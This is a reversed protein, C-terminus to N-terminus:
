AAKFIGSAECVRESVRPASGHIPCSLGHWQCQSMLYSWQTNCRSVLERVRHMKQGANTRFAESAHTPPEIKPKFLPFAPVATFRSGSLIACTLRVATLSTVHCSPPFTLGGPTFITRRPGDKPYLTHTLTAPRTMTVHQLHM